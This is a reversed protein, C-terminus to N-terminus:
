IERNGPCPVRPPKTQLGRTVNEVNEEISPAPRSVRAIISEKYETNVHGTIKFDRVNHLAAFPGLLQRQVSPSVPKLSLDEYSRHHVAVEFAIDSPYTDGTGCSDHHFLFAQCFSGLDDCAIVYHKLRRDDKRADRPDLQSTISM